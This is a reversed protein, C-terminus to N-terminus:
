GENGHAKEVNEVVIEGGDSSKLLLRKELLRREVVANERQQDVLRGRKRNLECETRVLECQATWYRARAREADIQACLFQGQLQL